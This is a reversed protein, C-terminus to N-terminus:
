ESNGVNSKLVGFESGDFVIKGLSVLEYFSLLLLRQILTSKRYKQYAYVAFPYSIGNQKHDRVSVM